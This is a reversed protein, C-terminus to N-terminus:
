TSISASEVKHLLLEAEQIMDTFLANDDAYDLDTLHSAPHRTSKRRTLTLGERDDIATRLAYDLVIIFLHPSLPDGQLVGTNINVNKTEGEPTLVVASTNVYMMQMAKVIKEPISYAHLIPFVKNRGVPDFAKEFDIFIIAAEKQHNRM